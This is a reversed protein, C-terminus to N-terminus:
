VIPEIRMTYTTFRITYMYQKHYKLLYLPNNM